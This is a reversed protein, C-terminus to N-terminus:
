DTEGRTAGTTVITVSMEEGTAFTVASSAAIAVFNM